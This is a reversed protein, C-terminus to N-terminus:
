ASSSSVELEKVRRKLREIERLAEDFITWLAYNDFAIPGPGDALGGELRHLSVTTLPRFQQASNQDGAVIVFPRAYHMAGELMLTTHGAQRTRGYHEVLSNLIRTIQIM